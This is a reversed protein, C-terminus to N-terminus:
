IWVKETLICIASMVRVNLIERRLRKKIGISLMNMIRSKNILILLDICRESM